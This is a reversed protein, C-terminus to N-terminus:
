LQLPSADRAIGETSDGSPGADIGDAIVGRNGIRPAALRVARHHHNGEALPRLGGAVDQGVEAALRWLRAARSAKALDREETPPIADGLDAADGQMPPGGRDNRPREEEGEHRGPAPPKGQR